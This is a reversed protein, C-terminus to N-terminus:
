HATQVLRAAFVFRQVEERQEDSLKAKRGMKIMVQRWKAEDHYNPAYLSHCNACRGVYLNRAAELRQDTMDPWRASAAAVLEPTVTPVARAACAALGGALLLLSSFVLLRDPLFASRPYRSHV